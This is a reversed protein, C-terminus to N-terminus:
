KNVPLLEDAFTWTRHDKPTPFLEDAFTWTHREKADGSRQLRWVEKRLLYNLETLDHPTAIGLHKMSELMNRYSFGEYTDCQVFNPLLGADLREDDLVVWGDIDSHDALWWGIEMTRSSTLKKPTTWDPHIEGVVGNDTLLQKCVDLGKSSWTSTIVLKAGSLTILRNLMAVACPDFVSYITTQNPLFFARNPIMPGDIDLFIIKTSM